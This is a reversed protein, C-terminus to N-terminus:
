LIEFSSQPVGYSIQIYIFHVIQFEEEGCFNSAPIKRLFNTTNSEWHFENQMHKRIVQQQPARIQYNMLCM